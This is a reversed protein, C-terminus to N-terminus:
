VKPYLGVYTYDDSSEVNRHAVGAAHVAIDGAQMEFEIGDKQDDLPGIGYISSAFTLM